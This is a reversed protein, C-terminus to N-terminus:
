SKVPLAKVPPETGDVVMDGDEIKGSCHIFVQRTVTDASISLISEDEPLGLLDALQGFEVYYQCRPNEIDRM